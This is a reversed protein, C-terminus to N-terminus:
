ALKARMSLCVTSQAPREYKSALRNPQVSSLPALRAGVLGDWSLTAKLLEDDFNEDMLDRAPLSAIRLFESMDKRGLRRLNLGIKGFTMLESLSTAGIRPM